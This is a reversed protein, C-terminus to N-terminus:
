GVMSDNGMYFRVNNTNGAPITVSWDINFFKNPAIYRWDLILTYTRGTVVRTLTTRGTYTNGNTTGTM